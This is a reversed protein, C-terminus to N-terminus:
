IRDIVQAYIDLCPRAPEIFSYNRFMNQGHFNSSCFMWLLNFRTLFFFFTKRYSEQALQEQQCVQSSLAETSSSDDSQGIAM